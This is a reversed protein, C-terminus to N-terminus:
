LGGSWTDCQRIDASEYGRTFWEQRQTSTGHTFTEPNVRGGASAQIRDDGITAAANLGDNIDAATLPEIYGTQEANGAWTGALCDAQLELRVSGSQAGQRDDGVRTDWGLLHQVHHGYEHALVYAEAFPGGTAGFQDRLANFFGLDIYVVEDLPCYFPGVASTANGCGTAVSDTFFTTQAQQYGNITSSWYAQISNIAGVARCDSRQNADEGTQCAAALDSNPTSITPQGPDSASNGSFMQMAIIVLAVILGLGGGGVAM